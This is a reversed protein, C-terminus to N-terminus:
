FGLGGLGATTAQNVLNERDNAPTPLGLKDALQTAQSGATNIHSGTATNLTAAIPDYGLGITNGTAQIADRAFLGLQHGVSSLFGQEAPTSGPPLTIKGSKIDAEFEAKSQADMQGSQYAQVVKLPVQAPAPQQAAAPPATQANQAPQATPTAGAPTSVQQSQAN